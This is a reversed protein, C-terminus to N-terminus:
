DCGCDLEGSKIAEFCAIIHDAVASICDDAEGRARLRTQCSALEPLGQREGLCIAPAKVYSMPLPAIALDSRIAAMQASTHASKYAIRYDRGIRGLGEVASARWSCGEEWMSVPLPDREWACGGKLGAWVLSEEILVQAGPELAHAQSSNYMVVDLEGREFRPILNESNEIVVDVAVHPHSEAFRSLVQPLVREGHDDPAGLRVTGRVDPMVFQALMENSLALIRRAYGVLIEGNVTLKVSRSDREFVSTGLVEELKKVQMSVASPTRFVREAARSFSGTEAIALFTRLLDIDVPTRNPTRRADHVTM